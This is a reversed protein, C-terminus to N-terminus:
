SGWTRRRGTLVMAGAVIVFGLFVALGAQFREITQWFTPPPPAPPAPIIPAYGPVTAWLGASNRRAAAETRDYHDARAPDADPGRTVSRDVLGFGAGLMAEGLDVGAAMCMGLLRRYRDRGSEICHVDIGAILDDLAVRAAAEARWDGGYGGIGYLVLAQAEVVLTRGDLAIASGTFERPPPPALPVAEVAEVPIAPPPPAEEAFAPAVGLASILALLRIAKHTM